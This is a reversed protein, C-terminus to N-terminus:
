YQNRQWHEPQPNSRMHYGGDPRPRPAAPHPYAEGHEQRRQQRQRQRARDLHILSVANLISVGSLILLLAKTIDNNIFAMPQNVRDILFFVIYMGSIVIACHPLIKYKM